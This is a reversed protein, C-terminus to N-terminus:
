NDVGFGKEVLNGTVENIDDGHSSPFERIYSDSALNNGWALFNPNTQSNPNQTEQCLNSSPNQHLHHQSNRNYNQHLPFENKDIPQIPQFQITPEM